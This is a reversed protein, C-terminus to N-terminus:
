GRGLPERPSPQELAYLTGTNVPRDLHSVGRRTGGDAEGRPHDDDGDARDGPNAAVPLLRISGGSVV